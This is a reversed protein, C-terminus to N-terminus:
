EIQYIPGQYVTIAPTWAVIGYKTEDSYLSIHRVEMDDTLIYFGKDSNKDSIIPNFYEKHLELLHNTFTVLQIFRFHNETQITVLYDGDEDPYEKVYIPIWQINKM